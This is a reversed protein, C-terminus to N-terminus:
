RQYHFESIAGSCRDIHMGLGGGGMTVITDGNPKSVAPIGQFAIWGTEGDPEVELLYRKSIEAKQHASMVAAAIARATAADPVAAGIASSCERDAANACIPVILLAAALCRVIM